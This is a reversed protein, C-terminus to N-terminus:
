VGFKKEARGIVKDIINLAKNIIDETITLPPILNFRNHFYGTRECILGEKLFENNVFNAEEKATTEASYPHAFYYLPTM